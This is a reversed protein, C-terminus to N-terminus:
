CRVSSLSELARQFWLFRDGLVYKTGQLYRLVRLKALDFHKTTPFKLYRALLNITFLLDPRTKHLWILMGVLKRYQATVESNSDEPTGLPLEMLAKATGPDMPTAVTSCDTM